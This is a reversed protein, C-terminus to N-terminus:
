IQYLLSGTGLVIIIDLIDYGVSMVNEPLLAVYNQGKIEHGDRWFLM